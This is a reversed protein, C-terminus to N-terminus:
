RRWRALTPPTAWCTCSCSSPWTATASSPTRFLLPPPPSPPPAVSFWPRGGGKEGREGEREGAGQVRHAARGVGQRHGGAGPRGDQLLPRGPRPGQLFPPSVSPAIPRTRARGRAEESAGGGAKRECGPESVEAPHEHHHFFPSPPLSAAFLFFPSAEVGQRSADGEERVRLLPPHLSPARGVRYRLSPCPRPPSFSHLSFFVVRARKRDVEGSGPGGRRGCRRGCEVGDVWRANCAERDTWRM